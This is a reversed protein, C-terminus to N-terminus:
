VVNPEANASTRSYEYPIQAQCHPCNTHHGVVYIGGCYNCKTQRVVEDQGVEFADKYKKSSKLGMILLVTGGGTSFFFTLFFAIIISSDTSRGMIKPTLDDFASAIAEGVTYKDRKLLLKHLNKNFIDAKKKTLIRDTDNGQMGEWYWDNFEEDPVVPESYVILWHKEDKFMELYRNYAYRELNRYDNQWDENNVTVVSPVIGSAKHFAELSDELEDEEEDTMIDADDEIIIKTSINSDDLRSSSFLSVIFVFLIAVGMILFMAAISLISRANDKNDPQKNAYIFSPRRNHYYIFRRSGTFPKHSLRVGSGGRGGHGHGGHHGGGHSGGGSSHPM